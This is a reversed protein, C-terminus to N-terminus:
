IHKAGLHYAGGQPKSVGGCLLHRSGLCLPDEPWRGPAQSTHGPRVALPRLSRRHRNELGRSPTMLDQKERPRVAPWAMPYKCLQWFGVDQIKIWCRRL